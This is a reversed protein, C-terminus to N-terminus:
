DVGGCPPSGQIAFPQVIGDSLARTDLYGLQCFTHAYSFPCYGLRNQEVKSLAAIRLGREQTADM